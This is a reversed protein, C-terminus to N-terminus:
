RQTYFGLDREQQKILKTLNQKIELRRSAIPSKDMSKKSLSKLLISASCTSIGKGQFNSSSPVSYISQQYKNKSQYIELQGKSKEKTKGKSQRETQCNRQSMIQDYQNLLQQFNMKNEPIQPIVLKPIIVNKNKSQNGNIKNNIVTKKPSLKMLQQNTFKNIDRIVMVIDKDNQQYYLQHISNSTNLHNMQQTTVPKMKQSSVNFNSYINHESTEWSIIKNEYEEIESSLEINQTTNFLIRYKNTAAVINVPQKQLKQLKNNRKQLIQHATVILLNPIPIKFQLKRMIQKQELQDYCKTLYENDDNFYLLDKFLIVHDIQLNGLIESIPKAFYFHFANYYRNYKHIAYKKKLNDIQIQSLSGQCLRCEKNQKYYM